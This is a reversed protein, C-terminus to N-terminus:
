DENIADAQKQAAERTAYFYFTPKCGASYYKLVVWKLDPYQERVENDTERIIAYM